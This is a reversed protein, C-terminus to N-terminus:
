AARLKPNRSGSQALARLVDASDVEDVTKDGFYPCAYETLTNIWQDQHKPNKWGDKHSEHVTTAAQRFTPIVRKAALREALPDGGSRAVKRLRLAEERAEALTTTSLGGLGIDRRRGKVVTRLVWKKNGTESIVLYLGNGDPYRGVGTLGRITAASLVKEKHKGQKM